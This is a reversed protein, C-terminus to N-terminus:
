EPEVQFKVTDTTDPTTITLELSYRHVNDELTLTGYFYDYKRALDMSVPSKEQKPLRVKATVTIKDTPIVEKDHDMVYVKFDTRTAILEVLLHNKTFEIVGGHPPVVSGPNKHCDCGGAGSAMVFSSLMMCVVSLIYKM